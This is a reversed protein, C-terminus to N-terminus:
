RRRKKEKRGFNSAFANTAEINKSAMTKISIDISYVIGALNHSMELSYKSFPSDISPLKNNDFNTVTSILKSQQYFLFFSSESM